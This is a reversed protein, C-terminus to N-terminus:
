PRRSRVEAHAQAGPPALAEGIETRAEGAAEATDAAAAAADAADAAVADAFAGRVAAAAEAARSNQERALIAEPRGAERQWQM